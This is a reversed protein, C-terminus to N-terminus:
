QQVPQTSSARGAAPTWATLDRFQGGQKQKIAPLDSGDGRYYSYAPQNTRFFLGDKSDGRSYVLPRDSGDPLGSKILTYGLTQKDDGFPDIPPNPLHAHLDSLSTPWTGTDFHYLHCALAVASMGCEANVRNFTVISHDISKRDIPTAALNEAKVAEDMETKADPRKLLQDILERVVGAQLAKKNAPDKTLEGGAMVVNLRDLAEARIGAGVLYVVLYKKGSEVSDALQLQDRLTEVAAADDGQLHQYLAADALENSLARCDNLYKLDLKPLKLEPWNAHEISRAQHALDRAPQNASFNEKEM